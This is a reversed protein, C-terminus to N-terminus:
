VCDVMFIDRTSNPSHNQSPGYESWGMLIFKIDNLLPMILGTKYMM